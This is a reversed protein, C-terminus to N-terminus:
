GARADDEFARADLTVIGDTLQVTERDVVLGDGLARRLRLLAQRLSSRAREEDREDWLLGILQERRVPKPSQRALYVLLALEKRRGPLIENGSATLRLEGLTHLQLM